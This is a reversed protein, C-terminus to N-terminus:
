VELFLLGYLLSEMVTGAGISWERRLNAQYTHSTIPTIAIADRLPQMDPFDFIGPSLSPPRSM